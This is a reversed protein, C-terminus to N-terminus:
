HSHTHTLTLFHSPPYSLPLSPAHPRRRVEPSVNVEGLAAHAEALKAANLERMERRRNKAIAADLDRSLYDEIEMAERERWERADDDERLM